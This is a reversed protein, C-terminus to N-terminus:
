LWYGHPLVGYGLEKAAWALFEPAFYYSTLRAIESEGLDFALVESIQKEGEAVRLLLVVPRGALVAAVAENADEDALTQKLASGMADDRGHEEVIGLMDVVVTPMLLARLAEPDRANFAAAFRHITEPIALPTPDLANAEALNRRARHLAAKVAGETTELMEAAEKNTFDFGEILLFVARQLPPMSGTLRGLAEYGLESFGGAEEGMSEDLGVVDISARRQRDLYIRSAIRHLYARTNIPQWQYALRGFARVMTEQTLDEADWASGTLSFCYRWLAPRLPAVHEDFLKKQERLPKQLDGLETDM